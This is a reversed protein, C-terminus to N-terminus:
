PSEGARDNKVSISNDLIGEVKQIYRRDLTEFELRYEEIQKLYFAEIREAEIMFAKIWDRMEKEAM